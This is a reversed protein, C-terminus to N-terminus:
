LNIDFTNLCYVDISVNKRILIKRVRPLNAILKATAIKVKEAKPICEDISSENLCKWLQQVSKTINATLMEIPQRSHRESYYNHVGSRAQDFEKLQFLIYM